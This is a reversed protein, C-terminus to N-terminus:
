AIGGGDTSHLTLLMGFFVPIPQSAMAQDPNESGGHRWRSM